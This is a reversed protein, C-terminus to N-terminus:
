RLLVTTLYPMNPRVIWQWIVIWSVNPNMPKEMEVKDWTLNLIEGKRMGTYFGTALIAKTHRPLHNFLTNFEEPNLIMDRANANRKLLKKVRKFVKVTEGSVIDNDFARNVVTKAAAIEQDVYSDSYGAAKRAAQYNGLEAPKIQGVIKNGFDANFSALNIKLTPYYSRAKVNQLALYWDTLEQFTMKEEPVKQLIRPNEYKQAKRKGEATRAEEISFGVAERRQKGGPLTYNIWYRVRNSRKAKVL